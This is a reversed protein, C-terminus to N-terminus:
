HGLSATKYLGRSPLAATPILSRIKELLLGQTFPKAIYDLAPSPAQDAERLQSSMLLIPLHPTLGSVREIIDFGAAASMAAEVVMLDLRGALRTVVRLTDQATPALLVRFGQGVLMTHVVKRILANRDAVLIL